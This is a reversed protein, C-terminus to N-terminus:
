KKGFVKNQMEKSSHFKMKGSIYNEWRQELLSEEAKSLKVTLNNPSLSDWLKEAIRRRQKQPLSLLQNIDVTM